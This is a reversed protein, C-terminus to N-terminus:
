TQIQAKEINSSPGSPIAALGSYEGKTQILVMSTIIIEQKTSYSSLIKAVESWINRM